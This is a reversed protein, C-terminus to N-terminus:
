CAINGLFKICKFYIEATDNLNGVALPSFRMIVDKYEDEPINMSCGTAPPQCSFHTGSNFTITGILPGKGVNWVRVIKEEYSGLNSSGIDLFPFPGVFTTPDGHRPHDKLGTSISRGSLSVAINGGDSLFIPKATYM